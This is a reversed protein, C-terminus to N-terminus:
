RARPAAARKRAPRMHHGNRPQIRSFSPTYNRVLHSLEEVILDFYRKGREPTALRPNGYVGPHRGADPLKHTTMIGHDFSVVLEFQYKWNKLRDVHVLDPRLHQMFATEFENAHTGERFNEGVQDTKAKAVHFYSAAGILYDRRGYQDLLQFIVTQLLPLNPNHGNLFLIRRFGGRVLSEAIDKVCQMFTDAKFSITGPFTQWVESYGYPLPPAVLCGTREGVARAVEYASTIDVQLPLHPGHQETSGVPQIVVPNKRILDRVQMWTLENLLM